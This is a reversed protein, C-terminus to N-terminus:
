EAGELINEGNEGGTVAAREARTKRYQLVAFVALVIMGAIFVMDLVFLLTQWWNGFLTAHNNTEAEIRDLVQFAAIVAATLYFAFVGCFGALAGFPVKFKMIPIM